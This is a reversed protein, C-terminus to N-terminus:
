NLKEIIYRGFGFSCNKGVGIIKGIELIRGFNNFNGSYVYEGIKGKFLIEKHKSMSFRIDLTNKTNFSILKISEAEKLLSYKLELYKNKDILGYKRNYTILLSMRRLILKILLKFDVEDTMEKLILPEKFVVKIKEGVEIRDFKYSEITTFSIHSEKIDYVKRDNNYLSIVFFKAREKGIGVTKGVEILSFFINPLYKISEAFLILNLTIIDNSKIYTQKNESLLIFHKYTDFLINKGNNINLSRVKTEFLNYYVCDSKILCDECLFSKFPCSNKKIIYSLVSRFASSKFSNIHTEEMFQLEIRFNYVFDDFLGLFYNYFEQNLSKNNEIM